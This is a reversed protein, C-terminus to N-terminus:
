QGGLRGYVALIVILLLLITNTYLFIKVQGDIQKVTAEADPPADGKLMKGILMGRKQSKIGVIIGNTAAIAFLIIKATLWGFTFLGVGIAHMNGIGTILMILIALPSLLGISKMARLITAKSQLEPAKRYHASLIYSSLLITVLLGFGLFHTVLLIERIAM